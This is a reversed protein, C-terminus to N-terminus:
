PRILIRAFRARPIPVPANLKGIPALHMQSRRTDFTIVFRQLLEMGIAPPNGGPGWLERFRYPGIAVAHYKGSVGEFDQGLGGGLKTSAILRASAASPDNVSSESGTDIRLERQIKVGPRPEITAPLYLKGNASRLAVTAGNGVSPPRDFNYWSLRHAKPDLRVIYSAFLESGILGRVRKPLPASSLDIIYPESRYSSPGLAITVPTAINAAVAGTGTGTVSSRAASAIKLEKALSADLVSRSAGSDLIFWYPGAGNVVVQAMILKGDRQYDLTGLPRASNHGVNACSSLGIMLAIAFRSKM